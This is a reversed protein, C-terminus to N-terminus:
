LLEFPTGPAQYRFVPKVVRGARTEVPEDGLVTPKLRDLSVTKPVGHQLIVYTKDRRDLVPKVVRGARTEVPEDGLVTPKLRDLSVTKPVGHQLIVYTKDRRDLVKFPGEYPPVLSSRMRDVRLWVHSCSRLSPPVYGPAQYCFVPKVVRGARTEVPEDYLVAPKLRDQSVTKRVGHQLIVYTKDHCDLVKFPGQLVVFRRLASKFASTDMSPLLELHVRRTVRCTLLLVWMKKNACKRRSSKGDQVLFPRFIDLGANTFLPAM